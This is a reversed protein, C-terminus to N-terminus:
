TRIEKRLLCDKEFEPTEMLCPAGASEAASAAAGDLPAVLEVTGGKAIATRHLSCLLQIGAADIESVRGLDLSTMNKDGSADRLLQGLEAARGVTLGGDIVVPKMSSKKQKTM